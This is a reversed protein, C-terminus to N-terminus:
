CLLCWDLCSQQEAPHQQPLPCSVLLWLLDLWILQLAAPCATQGEVKDHVTGLAEQASQAMNAVGENVSAVVNKITEM